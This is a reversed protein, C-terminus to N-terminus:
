TEPAGGATADIAKAAESERRRPAPTFTIPLTHLGWVGSFPRWTVEGALKMKTIRQAIMHIGEEIQAKAFHQGLCMHMGRGFGIHRAQLDVEREPDFTDAKKFANPDRGALPLPFAIMTDKPFRVGRYEFDKAVTRFPTSVNQYRFQEEV